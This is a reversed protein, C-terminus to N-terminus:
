MLESVKSEKRGGERRMREAESGIVGGVKRANKPQALAQLSRVSAM